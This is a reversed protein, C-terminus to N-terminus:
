ERSKLVAILDLDDLKRRVLLASVISAALVTAAALGYTSNAIVFPFRFVEQDLFLTLLWAFWYGMVLGFPIGLLTVTGIEGLLITSIERRTFGIVRLTALERSRESLSIRAGNYVVGLAIIIAFTLNIMRMHLMNKAVTNRFSDVSAQRITVSAVHPTEKLEHFIAPLFKPDATIMAGSIQPGERMLRNLAEINMFANLGSIDDLLEVVLVDAVPRKEQLAEVRVTEGAKVGLVEGLKKSIVLGAPPLSVFHGTKTKLRMLSSNAPLGMIGVRRSHSGVRLRASVVRRPECQHVGPLSALDHVADISVPEVTSLSVDFRQVDYFQTLIVEDVSNRMFNGVVVIAVSMSIALLSFSTKVPHRELQRLVMRAVNPVFRGLGIRELITPHYHAPPEPRMAEAPPLRVALAIAGFAGFAAAGGAVLIANAVVNPKVEFVLDPYQYVRLFLKTFDHALWMGGLTGIFGGAVTILLVFKMYHWAIQLNTYGFAKLAAIQERQLSTLRTLVVNLLFAAVCLFITPAIMGASRLGQIDSELLLNSLQDKRAFAGLCGYPEMIKDVRHIVDEVPTGRTLSISIDNFGGEMDYATSLAEHEMWLIAFHRPDPLMDGPKIQFVYEPSFAVGVVRLEKRRGNIIAAISGGLEIHNAKLFAESALVEDDRGVTLQRGRRLYLQNLRPPRTVPLSILQGVAPEELGPVDLTVLQVIRTEVQAVGPIETLREAAADPARKVKAFVDAFRYREYFTSRTLELSHMITRSNVFTAVGAAIVIAIAFSQGKMQSLDRFLKRDLASIM